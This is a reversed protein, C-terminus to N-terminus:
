KVGKKKKGKLRGISCYYEYIFESMEERGSMFQFDLDYKIQLTMLKRIVSLGTLTSHRTGRKVKSMSGEILLILKVKSDRARQIEKKFRTYGKGMTGFLDPISKREFYAPVEYGDEFICGYDGVDLKRRATVIVYEHQAFDLDLQERTDIIIRM